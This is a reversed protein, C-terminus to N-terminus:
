QLTWLQRATDTVALAMVERHVSNLSVLPILLQQCLSGASRGMSCPSGQLDSAPMRECLDGTLILHYRQFELLVWSIIPPSSEQLLLLPLACRELNAPSWHLPVAVPLESYVDRLAQCPCAVPGGKHLFSFLSQPLQPCQFGGRYQM